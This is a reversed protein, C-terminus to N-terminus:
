TSRLKVKPSFRDPWSRYPTRRAPVAVVSSFKTTAARCGHLLTGVDVFTTVLTHADEGEARRLLRALATNILSTTMLRFTDVAV